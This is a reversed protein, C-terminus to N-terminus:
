KFKTEEARSIFNKRGFILFNQVNSFNSYRIFLPHKKQPFITRMKWFHMKVLFRLRLIKCTTVTTQNITTEFKVCFSKKVICITWKLCFFENKPDTNEIDPLYQLEFIFRAPKRPSIEATKQLVLYFKLKRNLKLSFKKTNINWSVEVVFFLFHYFTPLQLKGEQSRVFFKVMLVKITYINWYRLKIGLNMLSVFSSCTASFHGKGEKKSFFSPKWWLLERAQGVQMWNSDCLENQNTWGCRWRGESSARTTGGFSQVKQSDTHRFCKAGGFNKAAVVQQYWFRMFHNFGSRQNYHESSLSFEGKKNRKLENFRVDICSSGKKSSILQGFRDEFDRFKTLRYFNAQGFFCYNQLGHSKPIWVTPQYKSSAIHKEFRLSLFSIRDAFKSNHVTRCPKFRGTLYITWFSLEKGKGSLSVNQEWKQFCRLTKPPM